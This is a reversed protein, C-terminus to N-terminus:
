CATNEGNLSTTDIHLLNWQDDVVVKRRVSLVVDMPLIHPDSKNLFFHIGRKFFQIFYFEKVSDAASTTKAPFANGNVKNSFLVFPDKSVDLRKVVGGHLLHGHVHGIQNLGDSTEKKLAPIAVSYDSANKRKNYRFFLFLRNEGWHQSHILRAFELRSKGAHVATPMTDALPM